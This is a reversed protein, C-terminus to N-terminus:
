KLPKMNNKWAVSFLNELARAFFPAKMWIGVDYTPHVEDDNLVMLIVEKGDVVCFRAKIDDIHKIEALKSIEKVANKTEKSTIPAAIRIKVGKKKLKKM